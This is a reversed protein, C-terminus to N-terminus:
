IYLLKHISVESKYMPPQINFPNDFDKDQEPHAEQVGKEEQEAEKLLQEALKKKADATM